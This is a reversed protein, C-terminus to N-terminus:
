RKSGLLIRKAFRGGRRVTADTWAIPRLLVAPLIYRGFETAMRFRDAKGNPFFLSSYRKIESHKARRNTYYYAAISRRSRGHPAALAQPHGHVSKLGHRFLVTRGLEPVVQAFCERKDMDWLELAGGFEPRWDRNLYTILVMENDLMTKHHLNFDVHLEFRGGTRTEHLGGGHFHPDPILNLVGTIQSLAELFRGSNILSFYLQTASGLRPQPFSRFCEEHEGKVLRLEDQSSSEFEENILELLNPNFLDDLILHPFARANRFSERLSALKQPSFFDPDIIEDLNIRAGRIVVHDCEINRRELLSESM